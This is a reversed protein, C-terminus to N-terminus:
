IGARNQNLAGTASNRRAPEDYMEVKLSIVSTHQWSRYQTDAAVKSAYEQWFVVTRLEGDKGQQAECSENVEESSKV